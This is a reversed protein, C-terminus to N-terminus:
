CAHLTRTLTCIRADSCSPLRAPRLLTCARRTLSVASVVPALSGHRVAQGHQCCHAAAARVGTGARGAQARARVSEPAVDSKRLSLDIRRGEAEVKLVRGLVPKGAPFKLEADRVFQDNLNKLM